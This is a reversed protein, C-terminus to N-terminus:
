RDGPDLPAIRVLVADRQVFGADPVCIEQVTGAIGAPVSNMLKMTEVIGIVTDPGVRDGVQVFPPAGPRPARYFTGMLPTRVEHLGAHDAAAGDAPARAAAPATGEAPDAAPDEAVDVVHPATLVQDIRTWGGEGRRLTLAFRQTRLRFEDLDLSDLLALIETVDDPHLSM